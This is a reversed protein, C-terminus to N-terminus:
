MVLGRGGDIFIVQGTIYSSADSALFLVLAAVDSPEGVRGLPMRAALKREVEPDKLAAALDTRILGPGIANVRINHPALELALAKTLMSVGSKAICYAPLGATGMPTTVREANVSSMNIIVGKKNKVMTQAVAQSCLHYGKVHIDMIQDWEEVSIEMLSTRVVIGANNM